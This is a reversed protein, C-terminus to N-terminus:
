GRDDGGLAALASRAIEGVGTVVHRMSSASVADLTQGVAALAEACVELDPERFVSIPYARSWQEIRELAERAREIREEGPAMAAIAARANLVAADHARKREGMMEIRREVSASLWENSAAGKLTEEITREAALWELAARGREVQAETAEPTPVPAARLMASWIADAQNRDCEANLKEGRCFPCPKLEESGM